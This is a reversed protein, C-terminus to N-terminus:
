TAAMHTPSTGVNQGVLNLPATLYQLSSGITPHRYAPENGDRCLGRTPGVSAQRGSARPNWFFDLKKLNNSLKIERFM